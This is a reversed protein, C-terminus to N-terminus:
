PRAKDYIIDFLGDIAEEIEGRRVKLAHRIAVLSSKKAKSEGKEELEFCELKLYNSSLLWAGPYHIHRHVTIDVKGVQM